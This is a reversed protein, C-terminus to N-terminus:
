LATRVPGKILATQAVDKFPYIPTESHTWLRDVQEIFSM